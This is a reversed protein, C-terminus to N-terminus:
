GVKTWDGCRSSEFDQGGSITLTIAGMAGLDNDVIDSQNSGSRYIAWYCRDSSSNARYVGPEMTLGVTYTYGDQLTTAAAYEEAAKVAAERTELEDEKAAVDVERDAVDDAQAKLRDREVTLETVDTEINALTSELDDIEAWAETLRENAVSLQTVAIGFAAWGAIAIVGVVVLSIGLAGFRKRPSADVDSSSATSAEAEIVAEAEALTSSAPEIDEPRPPVPPPVAEDTDTAVHSSRRAPAGSDINESM